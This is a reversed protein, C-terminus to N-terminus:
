TLKRVLKQTKALVCQEKVRLRDPTNDDLHKRASELRTEKIADFAESFECIDFEDFDGTSRKICQGTIRVYLKDYYRPPRVKRGNFIIYDHPFVSEHYKMFWDHGIAPKTSYHAFEPERWFVEGTEKDFWEYHADAVKGNQKKMVYRAVYAISQPTVSGIESNGYTWLSELIKSRYM